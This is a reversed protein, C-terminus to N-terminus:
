YGKGEFGWSFGLGLGLITIEFWSGMEKNGKLYNFGTDVRLRIGRRTDFFSYELYKGGYPLLLRLTFNKIDIIKM